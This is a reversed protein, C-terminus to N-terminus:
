VDLVRCKDETLEIGVERAVSLATARMRGKNEQHMQQLVMQTRLGRLLADM